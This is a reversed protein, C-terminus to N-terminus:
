VKRLGDDVLQNIILIMRETGIYNGIQERRLNARLENRREM